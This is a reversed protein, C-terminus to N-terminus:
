SAYCEGLRSHEFCGLAYEATFWYFEPEVVLMLDPLTLPPVVVVQPNCLGCITRSHLVGKSALIKGLFHYSSSIYDIKLPKRKCTLRLRVFKPRCDAKCYNLRSFKPRNPTLSCYHYNEILKCSVVQNVVLMSKCKKETPFLRFTTMLSLSLVERALNEGTNISVWDPM